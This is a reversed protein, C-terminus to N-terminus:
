LLVPNIVLVLHVFLKLKCLMGVNIGGGRKESWAPIKGAMVFDNKGHRIKRATKGNEHCSKKWWALIKANM